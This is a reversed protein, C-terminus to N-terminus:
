FFLSDLKKGAIWLLIAVIFVGISALAGVGSLFLGIGLCVLAGTIFWRAAKFWPMAEKMGM